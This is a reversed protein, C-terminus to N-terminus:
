LRALLEHLRALDPPKAFHADFGAHATRQRDANAAYGTLAILLPRERKADRCLARAVEYGDMGPLGIDCLVVEPLFSEAALGIVGFEDM